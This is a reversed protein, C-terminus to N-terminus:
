NQFSTDYDIVGSEDIVTELGSLMTEINTLREGVAKADASMGEQTLTSDLEIKGGSEVEPLDVSFLVINSGLPSETNGRFNLTNGIVDASRPVDSSEAIIDTDVEVSGNNEILGHGFNYQSAEPIDDATIFGSDNELQSTKTPIEDKKAYSSLLVNAKDDSDGGVTVSGQYVPIKKNDSTKRKSGTEYWVGVNFTGEKEVMENPILCSYTKDEKPALEMIYADDLSNIYFSAYFRGNECDWSDDFTVEVEDNNINGSTILPIPREVILVQGQTKLKLVSM